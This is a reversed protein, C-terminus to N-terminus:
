LIFYDPIQWISRGNGGEIARRYFANKKAAEVSFLWGETDQSSDTLTTRYELIRLMM